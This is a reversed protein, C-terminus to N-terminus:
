RRSFNNKIFSNQPVYKSAIACKSKPSPVDNTTSQNAKFMNTFLFDPQTSSLIVPTKNTPTQTNGIVYGPAPVYM